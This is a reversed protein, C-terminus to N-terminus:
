SRVLQWAGRALLDAAVRRGLAEPDDGTDEGRLIAGGDARAV